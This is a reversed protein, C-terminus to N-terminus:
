PNRREIRYNMYSSARRRAIDSTMRRVRERHGASFPEARYSEVEGRKLQESYPVYMKDYKELQDLKASPELRERMMMITPVLVVMFAAAVAIHMWKRFPAAAPKKKRGAERVLRARLMQDFEPKIDPVNGFAGLVAMADDLAAATEADLADGGGGELARALEEAQKKEKEEQM